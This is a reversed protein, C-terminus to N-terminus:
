PCFSTSIVEFDISYIIIVNGDEFTDLKRGCILNYRSFNRNFWDIVFKDILDVEDSTIPEISDEDGIHICFSSTSLEYDDIFIPCYSKLRPFVLHFDKDFDENKRLLEDFFPEDNQFDHVLVKRKNIIKTYFTGDFDGLPYSKGSETSLVVKEM